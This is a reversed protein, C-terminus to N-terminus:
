PRVWLVTGLPAPVRELHAKGALGAAMAQSGVFHEPESHLYAVRISNRRPHWIISTIVREAM